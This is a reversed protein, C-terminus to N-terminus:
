KAQITQSSQHFPYFESTHGNLRFTSPLVKEQYNINTKKLYSIHTKPIIQTKIKSEKLLSSPKSSVKVTAEVSDWDALATIDLATKM